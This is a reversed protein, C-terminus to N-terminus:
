SSSRSKEDSNQFVIDFNLVKEVFVASIGKQGVKNLIVPLLFRFVASAIM